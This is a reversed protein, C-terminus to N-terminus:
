TRSFRVRDGLMLRLLALTTGGLAPVVKCLVNSREERRGLAVIGRLIGPMARDGVVLAFSGRRLARWFGFSGIAFTLNYAMDFVASAAPASRADADFRPGPYHDVIVSPDYVLRWGISTAWLGSAVESHVQAGQGRLNLPIALAERRYMCNVEKLVDVEQPPGTGLHHNGTLRGWRSIKGVVQASGPGGHDPGGVLDRGGCGGVKPDPFQSLLREIWDIRPVADDDILAIFPTHVAALGATLAATKGPKDVVVISPVLPLRGALYCNTASDDIRVVVVTSFRHESQAALGSLCDALQSPRRLTPIVVTVLPSDDPTDASSSLNGITVPDNTVTNIISSVVRSRRHGM